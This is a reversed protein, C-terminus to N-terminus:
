IDDSYDETVSGFDFAFCDGPVAGSSRLFESIEDGLEGLEAVGTAVTAAAVQAPGATIMLFSLASFQMTSADTLANPSESVSATWMVDTDVSYRGTDITWTGDGSDTALQAGETCEDNMKQQVLLQVEVDEVAKSITHDYCDGPFAVDM